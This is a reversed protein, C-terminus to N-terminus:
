VGGDTEQVSKGISRDTGLRFPEREREGKKKQSKNGCLVHEFIFYIFTYLICIHIRINYVICVYMYTYIPRAHFVVQLLQRM